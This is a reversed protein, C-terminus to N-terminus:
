GDARPAARLLVAAHRLRERRAGRAAAQWQAADIRHYLAPRGDYDAVMGPGFGLAALCLRAGRNSADCAAWVRAARLGEFAHQLVAAGGDMAVGCGWHAVPLRAGLEVEGAWGAMPMLSFWGAFRWAAAASADPVSAHWIGLGPCARYVQQLREIFLEAQGPAELPHDEVLLERVRADAHLACVDAADSPAFERLRLRRSSPPGVSVDADALPEFPPADAQKM